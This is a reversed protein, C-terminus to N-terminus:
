VTAAPLGPFGRVHGVTRVDFLRVRSGNLTLANISSANVRGSVSYVLVNHDSHLGEVLRSFGEEVGWGRFWYTSKIFGGTDPIVIIDVYHTLGDSFTVPSMFTLILSSNSNLYKSYYSVIKPISSLNSAYLNKVGLYKAGVSAESASTISTSMRSASTISQAMLTLSFILLIAVAVSRRRILSTLAKAALATAGGFFRSLWGILQDIHSATLKAFGYALLVPAFPRLSAEFMFLVVLGIYLGISLQGPVTSMLVKGASWGTLGEVVFLLGSFISFWGWWGTKLPELLAEDALQTRVAESATISYSTRVPRKVLYILIVTISGATFGEIIPDGLINLSEKPYRGFYSLLIVSSIGVLYAIIAFILSSKIFWYKLERGRLGRLRALGLSRRLTLVGSEATSPIAIFVAILPIILSIVSGLRVFPEISTFAQLRMASKTLSVYTFGLFERLRESADRLANYSARLSVPSIYTSPKLDVIAVIMSYRAELSFGGLTSSRNYRELISLLHDMVERARAPSAVIVYPPPPTLGTSLTTVSTFTPSRNVLQISGGYIQLADLRKADSESMAECRLQLLDSLNKGIGTPASFILCSSKNLGEVVWLAIGQRLLSPPKSLNQLGTGVSSPNTPTALVISIAQAVLADRVIGSEVLKRYASAVGISSDNVLVMLARSSPREFFEKRPPNALEVGWRVSSAIRSSYTYLEATSAYISVLVMVADLSALAV